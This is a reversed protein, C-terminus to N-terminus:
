DRKQGYRERVKMELGVSNLDAVELNDREGDRHEGHHMRRTCSSSSSENINCIAPAILGYWDRRKTSRSYIGFTSRHTPIKTFVALIGSPRGSGLASSEDDGSANLLQRRLRSPFDAM